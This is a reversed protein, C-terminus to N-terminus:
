SLDRQPLPNMHGLQSREGEEFTLRGFEDVVVQEAFIIKLGHLFGTLDHTFIDTKSQTVLARIEPMHAVFFERIETRREPFYVAVKAADVVRIYIPKGDEFIQRLAPEVNERLTTIHKPDPRLISLALASLFKDTGPSHVGVGIRRINHMFETQIEGRREPFWQVAGVIFRWNGFTDLQNIYHSWEDPKLGLQTQLDPFLEVTQRGLELYLYDGKEANARRIIDSRSSKIIQEVEFTPDEHEGVDLLERAQAPRRREGPKMRM